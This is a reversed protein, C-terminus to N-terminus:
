RAAYDAIRRYGGESLVLSYGRVPWRIPAPAGPWAPAGARRALTVHPRFPRSEVPLRAHRLVDALRAHLAELEPPLAQPCLVALGGPWSEAHELRLEFRRMPVELQPVLREIREAAVPGIYHLTLHLREPAVRAAGAPWAARDAAAVIAERTRAGPWLALFLRATPGEGPHRSHM